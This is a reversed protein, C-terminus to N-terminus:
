GSADVVLRLSDLNQAMAVVPGRIDSALEPAFASGSWTTSFLSVSPSAESGLTDDAWLLHLKGGRSALQPQSAIGLAPSVAQGSGGGIIQWDAGNFHRAYIEPRAQDDGQWAVFIQGTHYAVTPTRNIGGLSSVGGDSASDALENWTTGAFERLYIESGSSTPQTWTVSVKTGDTAAALDSVSISSQSVGTGSAFAAGGLGSWTGGSFRKVFINAIGGSTDLWAVTPGGTTMLVVASDAQGTGSIGGPTLSTGLATWAGLGGAASPDFKAARIDSAIDTYETWSVIPNGDTDIALSPRRSSGATNSVGGESASHGSIAPLEQWGIGPVHKTVYIEFNGRRSDAWASYRTGAADVALSPEIGAASSQSVGDGSGSGALESWRGRTDIGDPLKVVAHSIATGPQVAPNPTPTPPIFDSPTVGEGSGYDALNSTGSGADIFDDNGEGWLRDNGGQGYLRDRGSGIESRSTGFDGYLFDVANDEGSAAVNQGYL